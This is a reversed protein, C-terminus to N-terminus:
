EQITTVCHIREPRFSQVDNGLFLNEDQIFNQRSILCIADTKFKVRDPLSDMSEDIALSRVYIIRWIKLVFNLLKRKIEGEKAADM